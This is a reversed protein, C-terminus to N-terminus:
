CKTEEQEKRKMKHLWKLLNIRKKLKKHSKMKVKKTIYLIHSRDKFPRLKSDSYHIESVAYYVNKFIVPNLNWTAIYWCMFQSVLVLAQEVSLM